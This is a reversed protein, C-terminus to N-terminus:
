IGSVEAPSWLGGGSKDLGQGAELFNEGSELSTWWVQETFFEGVVRKSTPAIFLSGGLGSVMAWECSVFFEGLM